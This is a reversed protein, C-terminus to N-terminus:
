FLLFNRTGHLAPTIIDHTLNEETLISNVIRSMRISKTNESARQYTVDGMPDSHALLMGLDKKDSDTLFPRLVSCVLIRLRVCSLRKEIGCHALEASFANIIASSDLQGGSKSVYLFPSDSQRFHKIYVTIKTHLAVDLQIKLAGYPKATKHNNLLMTYCDKEKNLKAANFDSVTIDTLAQTRPCGALASSLMIHNRVQLEEQKTPFSPPNNLLLDTEGYRDSSKWLSFDTTNPLEEEQLNIYPEQTKAESRCSESLSHM